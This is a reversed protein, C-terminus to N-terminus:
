VGALGAVAGPTAPLGEATQETENQGTVSKLLDLPSRARSPTPAAPATPAAPSTIPLDLPNVGVTEALRQFMEVFQPNQLLAPNGALMALLGQLAQFERELDRAEDTTIVEVRFAIKSVYGSPMLAFRQKEMRQLKTANRQVEREFEDRGPFRGKVLLDRTAQWSFYRLVPEDFRKRLERPDATFSLLHEDNLQSTLHPVVFDEFLENLFIGLNERKFGFVGGSQKTQLISTGLPQTAAPGEGRTIDYTFTLRDAETDWANEDQAFASLNREENAIPTIESQVRLIDGNELDELVNRAILEDRTQFIHKTSIKMAKAKDNVLENRRIQPDFLDEVIGIGLWRGPTRAYHAERYPWEEIKGKLFVVGTEASIKGDTEVYGGYGATIFVAKVWTNQDGNELLVSEPVEGYREVVEIFPADGAYTNGIGDAYARPAFEQFRNIAEDVANDDWIGKMARLEGPTMFHREHVWSDQLSEVGQNNMLNRLDVLSVNLGGKVKAKKAVVTGYIPLAEGVQNLFKAFGVKKMWNKVDREIIWTALYDRASDTVVHIDRTDFELSKTAVDCRYKSVNYFFKRDGQVDINGTKFRSNYYLHVQKVTEYQNFTYGPVVEVFGSLFESRESRIM